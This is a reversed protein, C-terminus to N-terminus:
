EDLLWTLHCIVSTACVDGKYWIPWCKSKAKAGANALNPYERGASKPQMVMLIEQCIRRHYQRRLSSISM